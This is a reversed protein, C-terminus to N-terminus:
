RQTTLSAAAIRRPSASNSVAHSVSTQLVQGALQQGLGIVSAEPLREDANVAQVGAWVLSAAAVVAYIPSRTSV